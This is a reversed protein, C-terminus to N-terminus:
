AATLNSNIQEGGHGKSLRNENQKERGDMHGMM